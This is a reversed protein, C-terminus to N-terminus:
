IHTEGKNIILPRKKARPIVNFNYSLRFFYDIKAVGNIICTKLREM